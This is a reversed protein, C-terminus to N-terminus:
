LGCWEQLVPHHDLFRVLVDASLVVDQGVSTRLLSTRSLRRERVPMIPITPIDVVVMRTLNVLPALAQLGRPTMEGMMGGLALTRLKTLGQDVSHHFEITLSDWPFVIIKLVVPHREWM